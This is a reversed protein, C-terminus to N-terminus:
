SPKVNTSHYDELLRLANRVIVPGPRKKGGHQVENQSKWIGWCILVWKELMGQQTEWCIWLRSFTDLFSWSEQVNFPLSLKCSSWVEISCNCFCLLHMSTEVHRGCDECLNNATIKRRFISEKIALIINCAKWAFHKIRNPLNMRWVGKWVGHLKTPALCSANGGEAEIERVLRYASKM